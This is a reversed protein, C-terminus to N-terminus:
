PAYGVFNRLFQEYLVEVEDTTIGGRRMFNDMWEYDGLGGNCISTGHSSHTNQWFSFDVPDFLPRSESAEPNGDIWVTATGVGTIPDVKMSMVVLHPDYPNYTGTGYNSFGNGQLRVRRSSGAGPEWEARVDLGRTGSGGAASEKFKWLMQIFRENDAPLSAAELIGGATREDGLMLEAAEGSDGGYVSVDDNNSKWATVGNCADVLPPRGPYQSPGTCQLNAKYLSALTPPAIRNPLSNFGERGTWHTGTPAIIKEVAMAFSDCEYTLGVELLAAYSKAYGCPNAVEVHYRRNANGEDVTLTLTDGTEGVMPAGDQYWQYTVDGTVDLNVAASFTVVKGLVALKDAPHTAIYVPVCTSPIPIVAEPIQPGFGPAGLEGTVRAIVKDHKEYTEQVNSIFRLEHVVKEGGFRDLPISFWEHGNAEVWRAWRHYVETPMTFQLEVTSTYEPWVKRQRTWGCEFPKRRHQGDMRQSYQWTPCPFFSPYASRYLSWPEIGPAEVPVSVGELERETAGDELLRPTGNELTRSM